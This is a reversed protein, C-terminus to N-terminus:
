YTGASFAFSNETFCRPTFRQRKNRLLGMLCDVFMAAFGHQRPRRCTVLTEQLHRREVAPQKRAHTRRLRHTSETSTNSFIAKSCCRTRRTAGVGHLNDIRLVDHQPSGVCSEGVPMEPWKNFLRAALTCFNHHDVGNAGHRGIFRVPKNLREGAGISGQHERHHM